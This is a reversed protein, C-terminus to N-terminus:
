NNAGTRASVADRIQREGDSSQQGVWSKEVVGKRNVVILTPTSRVRSDSLPVTLVADPTVGFDGAFKNLVEKSEFGAIILQFQKQSHASEQLLTKYFAMSSACYRCSSHVFVVATKTAAELDRTDLASMTDGARYPVDSEPTATRTRQVAMGLVAVCTVALLVNLCWEGTIRV